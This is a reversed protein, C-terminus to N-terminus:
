GRTYRLQFRYSQPPIKEGRNSLPSAGLLTLNGGGFAMPKDNELVIPKGGRVTFKVTIRGRWVCTVYRPCRSDEVIEVPRLHLRNLQVSQGFPVTLSVSSRGGGTAVAMQAGLALALVSIM